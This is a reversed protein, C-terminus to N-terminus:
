KIWLVIETLVMMRLWNSKIQIHQHHYNNLYFRIGLVTSSRINQPIRIKIKDLELRIQVFKTEIKGLDLLIQGLTSEIIKSLDSWLQNPQCVGIEL